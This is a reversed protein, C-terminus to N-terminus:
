KASSIETEQYRAGMNGPRCRDVGLIDIKLIGFVAPLNKKGDQYVIDALITIILCLM